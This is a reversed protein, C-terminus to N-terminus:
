GANGLARIVRAPNGAAFVHDPIDRTVVSGAGIVCRDGITVGPCIIAGGGVWVDSRITIPKAFELWKRREIADIPHTATYIQVAPGFLVNNGITVQMVDLVVCNFNFFVKTGVSINTGYDCFFPPQIWVDTKKGLLETLLRQREEKQGERTANFEQCLDRCRDRERCLQVDLPDYIEGALMKEKETKV